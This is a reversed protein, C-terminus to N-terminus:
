HRHQATTLLILNNFLKTAVMHGVTDVGSSAGERAPRDCEEWHRRPSVFCQCWNLGERESKGKKESLKGSSFWVCSIILNIVIQQWPKQM